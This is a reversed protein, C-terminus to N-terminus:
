KVSKIWKLIPGTVTTDATDPSMVESIHSHDKFVLSTPCQGAQCLQDRLTEAFTIVSPPDLEAVSVLFPLKAKILGPLNSQTLEPAANPRVPAAGRGPEAFPRETGDPQRCPPIGGAQPATVPLINFGPASMFIVGKVGVGKPGYFEPHGIYTGVPVNGASQSWIFVRAPDGKYRAINQNVWQVLLSVDKAPDDWTQGPRRQMNVGVMDNKVAWLMINDYFVDGKPGGQQKNGPGGSVYILVTRAGGIEEGTFVDLVNKPDPGFSVDRAISIGPYPPNPHLPRYLQATQPVCVGRGIAILKKAIEPPVQAQAMGVAATAVVLLWLRRQELRL